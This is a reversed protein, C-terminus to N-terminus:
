SHDQIVLLDYSFVVGDTQTVSKINIKHIYLSLSFAKKELIFHEYEQNQHNLASLCLFSFAAISM